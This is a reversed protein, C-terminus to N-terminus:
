NSDGGRYRNGYADFMEFSGNGLTLMIQLPGGNSTDSFKVERVGSAMYIPDFSPSNSTDYLFADQGDGMVKVKRTGDNSQYVTQGGNPNGDPNDYAPNSNIPSYNGNNYVYIVNVHYPDQWWWGGDHWYCWRDYANDYWWWNNGYWRTWFYSSGLYWGYWHYGWNDYYHCYNIGNWTHWYYNNARNEHALNVNIQSMFTSSNVITNMHSQVVRGSMARPAFVKADIPHDAPGMHPPIIVSHKRDTIMM